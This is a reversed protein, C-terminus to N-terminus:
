PKWKVRGQIYLNIHSLFNGRRINKGILFLNYPLSVFRCLTKAFLREEQGAQGKIIPGSINDRFTRLYSRMHAAYCGLLASLEDFNEVSKFALKELYDSCLLHCFAPFLDIKFNRSFNCYLLTPPAVAFSLSVRWARVSWLLIPSEMESSVASSRPSVRQWSCCKVATMKVHRHAFHPATSLLCLRDCSYWRVTSYVNVTEDAKQIRWQVYM